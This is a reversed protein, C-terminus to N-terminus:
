LGGGASRARELLKEVFADDWRGLFFLLDAVTFRNRMLHCNGMAWRAVEPPVAPDLDGFRAPAGAALLAGALREPSVGMERLADQHGPWDRLFAEFDKRSEKWRELKKAYDSWCEDAVAGTPDVGTFAERVTSEMKEPDPFCSDVDVDSPDLDEFLTEWAAAVVVSAVGVQAGHFGLPNDNQGNHLDVLHSVLHETGSLCATTGTVGAAIGGLTLAGVLLRLAEPERRRVADAREVLDPGYELVVDVPAPTYSDDMGVLSALYWDAPGTYMAVADGYGAANMVAPAEAITPLDALLVDPWRSPVTRKVGSKLLVSVDDSYGNVSAATQVIVLPTGGTRATAVKCIDSITGSGVVVVCGAGAVAGEAEELAEEDAHLEDHGAGIVRREVGFREALMGEILGKLEEDGRPVPTPDTVLVVRGRGPKGEDELLESVVGPLLGLVESGIEIRGMGLPALRGGPDSAALKRRLGDLDTPDAPGGGFALAERDRM